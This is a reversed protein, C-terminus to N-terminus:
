VGSVMLYFGFFFLCNKIKEVWNEICVNVNFMSVLSLFSLVMYINAHKIDFYCWKLPLNKIASSGPITTLTIKLHLLAKTYLYLFMNGSVDSRPGTKISNTSGFHLRWLGNFTYGCLGYYDFNCWGELFTIFYFPKPHIM